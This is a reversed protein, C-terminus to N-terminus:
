RELVFTLGLGFPYKINPAQEHGRFCSLLPMPLHCYVLGAFPLNADFFHEFM